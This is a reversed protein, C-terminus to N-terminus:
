DIENWLRELEQFSKLANAPLDNADSGFVQMQEGTELVFGNEDWTGNPKRLSKMQFEEQLFDYLAYRKSIGYDHGEDAFHANKVKSAADYFEYIRQVFPFEMEPVHKTWDDGNSIILQPKPAFFASFEANSSGGGCLHIPRGSECPCGGAFYSSLMVVPVSLSYREDLASLFMTQSGGGSAGSVGVREPDAYELTLLYDLVRFGNIIQMTMALSSRHTSPNFQLASEGYAFLDYNMVIAGMRAMTACRAQVAKNYRGDPFHGNPSVIVPLKNKIDLPKYVSGFVYVGPLTELAVNEVQYDKYKRKKTVIAASPDWKPLENIGLAEWLCPILEKKRQEWEEVNRYQKALHALLEAGESPSRKHYAYPVIKYRGDTEVEFVLDFPSLINRLSEEADPRFRWLAYDLEKGEILNESVSIQIEYQKQFTELVKSLSMRYNEDSTQAILAHTQLCLILFVFRLINRM